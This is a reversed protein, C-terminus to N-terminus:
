VISKGYDIAGQLRAAIQGQGRPQYTLAQPRDNIPRQLTMVSMPASRWALWVMPRAPSIAVEDPAREM